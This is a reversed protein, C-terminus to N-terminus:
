MQKCQKIRRARVDANLNMLFIKKVKSDNAALVHAALTQLVMLYEEGTLGSAILSNTTDMIAQNVKQQDM